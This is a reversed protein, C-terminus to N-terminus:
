PKPTGGEGMQKKIEEAVGSLDIGSLLPVLRSVLAGALPTAAKAVIEQLLKSAIAMPSPVGPQATAVPPIGRTTAEQTLLEEQLAELAEKEREMELEKQHAEIEAQHAARQRDLAEIQAQVGNTALKLHLDLLEKQHQYERDRADKIERVAVNFGERTEQTMEIMRSTLENVRSLLNDVRRGSEREVLGLMGSQSLTPPSTTQQQASRKMFLIAEELRESASGGAGHIAHFDNLWDEQDPTRRELPIGKLAKIAEYVDRPVPEGPGPIDPLRLSVSAPQPPAPIVPLPKQKAM